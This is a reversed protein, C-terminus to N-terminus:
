RMKAMPIADMDDYEQNEGAMAWIMTYSSTGCGSHISWSPNIVADEAKMVIHKTGDPPGMLHFVRQDPEMDFYTYVEMRREHTHCPMTNWVSGPALVTLGMMLQCTELVDRSIFQYVTRENCTERGGVQRKAAKEVPIHTTACAKHAPASAMFFKAPHAADESRFFIERAGMAVYLCDQYAMPYSKGDVIVSGAGGINFVGLERRQLFYRTGFNKWVDMGKEISVTEEVPMCGLTVVRDVHSYVSVVSDKQYLNEILFEKRLEETTRRQFDQPNTSYRIDM